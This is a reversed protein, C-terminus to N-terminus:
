VVTRIRVLAIAWICEHLTRFAFPVLTWNGNPIRLQASPLRSSLGTAMPFAGRCIAIPVLTWNGSDIGINDSLLPPTALWALYQLWLLFCLILSRLICFHVMFIDLFYRCVSWAPLIRKIASVYIGLERWVFHRVFGPGNWIIESTKLFYYPFGENIGNGPPNQRSLAGCRVSRSRSMRSSLRAYFTM